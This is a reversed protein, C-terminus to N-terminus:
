AAAIPLVGTTVAKSNFREATEQIAQIQRLMNRYAETFDGDRGASVGANLGRIALPALARVYEDTQDDQAIKATKM